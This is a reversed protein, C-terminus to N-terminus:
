FSLPSAYIQLSHSVQNVYVVFDVSLEGNPRGSPGNYMITVEEDDRVLLTALADLMRFKRQNGSSPARVSTSVPNTWFAADRACEMYQKINELPSCQLVNIMTTTTRFDLILEDRDSDIYKNKLM